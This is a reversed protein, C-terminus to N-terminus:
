KPCTIERRWIGLVGPRDRTEVGDPPCTPRGVTTPLPAQNARVRYSRRCRSPSMQRRRHEERVTAPMSASRWGRIIISNEHRMIYSPHRIDVRPSTFRSEIPSARPLGPAAHQGMPWSTCGRGPELQLLHQYVHRQQRASPSCNAREGKILSYIKTVRNTRGM